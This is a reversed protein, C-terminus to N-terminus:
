TESHVGILADFLISLWFVAWFHRSLTHMRESTTFRAVSDIFLGSNRTIVGILISLWNWSIKRTGFAIFSVEKFAV